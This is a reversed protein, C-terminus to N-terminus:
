EKNGGPNSGIIMLEPQFSVNSQFAYFDMDMNYTPNTVIEHCGDAVERLWRNLKQTFQNEM